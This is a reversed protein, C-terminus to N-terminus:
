EIIFPAPVGFADNEDEEGNDVGTISCGVKEKADAPLSSDLSSSPLPDSSSFALMECESVPVDCPLRVLTSQFLRKRIRIPIYNLQRRRILAIISKRDATHPGNVEDLM